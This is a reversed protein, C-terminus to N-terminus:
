LVHFERLILDQILQTSWGGTPYGAEEPGAEVLAKLRKKQSPTLNAPRGPSTAYRLSEWRDLLWATSWHYITQDVVGWFTAIRSVEWDQNLLRLAGIRRVLRVDGTRFADEWRTHLAKVTPGKLHIRLNM